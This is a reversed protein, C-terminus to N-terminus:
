PVAARQFFSALHELHLALAVDRVLSARQEPAEGVVGRLLTLADSPVKTWTVRRLAQRAGRLSLFHGVIRFLFYYGVVNPGPLLILFV